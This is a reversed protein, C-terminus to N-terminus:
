MAKQWDILVRDNRVEGMLPLLSKVEEPSNEAAWGQGKFAMHKNAPSYRGDGEMFLQSEEPITVLKATFGDKEDTSVTLKYSGLLQEDMIVGFQLGRIILTGSGSSPLTHYDGALSPAFFELEGKTEFLGLEPFISQLSDLDIEGTLDVFSWGHIGLILRGNISGGQNIVYLRTSIRGTLLAPLSTDLDIREIYLKNNNQLTLVMGDVRADLVTGSVNQWQVGPLSNEQILVAVKAAPFRFSLTVLFVIAGLITLRIWYKKM